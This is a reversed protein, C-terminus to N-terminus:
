HFAFWLSSGAGAKQFVPAFTKLCSTPAGLCMTNSSNSLSCRAWGLLLAWMKLSTGIGLHTEKGSCFKMISILAKRIWTENFSVYGSLWGQGRKMWELHWNLALQKDCQSRNNVNLYHEQTSFTANLWFSLKFFIQFMTVTVSDPILHKALCKQINM